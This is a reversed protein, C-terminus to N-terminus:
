EQRNSRRQNRTERLSPIGGAFPVIQGTLLRLLNLALRQRPDNIDQVSDCLALGEFDITFRNGEIKM